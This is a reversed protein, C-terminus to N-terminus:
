SPINFQERLMFVSQMVTSYDAPYSVRNRRPHGYEDQKDSVSTGTSYTYEADDRDSSDESHSGTMWPISTNGCCTDEALVDNYRVQDALVQARNEIHFLSRSTCNNSGKRRLPPTRM